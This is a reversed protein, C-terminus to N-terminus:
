DSPPLMSMASAALATVSASAGNMGSNNRTPSCAASSAPLRMPAAPHLEAFCSHTWTQRRALWSGASSRAARSTAATGVSGPAWCVRCAASSCARAVLVSRSLGDGLQKGDVLPLHLLCGRRLLTGAPTIAPVISLLVTVPMPLCSRGRLYLQAMPLFSPGACVPHGVPVCMVARQRLDASRLRLSMRISAWWRAAVGGRRLRCSGFVLIFLCRGLRHRLGAGDSGDDVVVGRGVDAHHGAGDRVAGDRAGTM